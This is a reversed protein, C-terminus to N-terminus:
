GLIDDLLVQGYETKKIRRITKEFDEDIEERGRVGETENAFPLLKTARIHHQIKKIAKNEIQRVRERTVKLAMAVGELTLAKDGFLGYRARIIVAERWTLSRMVGAIAWELERQFVVEIIYADDGIKHHRRVQEANQLKRRTDRTEPAGIRRYSVLEWECLHILATSIKCDVEKGERFTQMIRVWVDSIFDKKTGSKRVYHYRRKSQSIWWLILHNVQDVDDTFSELTVM